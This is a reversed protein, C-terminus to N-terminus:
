FNIFAGMDVPFRSIPSQNSNSAYESNSTLKKSVKIWGNVKDVTFSKSFAGRVLCEYIYADNRSLGIICASDKAIEPEGEIRKSLRTLENNIYYKM